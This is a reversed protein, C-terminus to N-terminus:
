YFNLETYARECRTEDCVEIIVYGPMPLEELYPTIDNVSILKNDEDCDLSNDMLFLCTFIVRDYQECHDEDYGCQEKIFRYDDDSKRTDKSLFFRVDFDYLSEAEWVFHVEEGPYIDTKDSSFHVLDIELDLEEQLKDAGCATFLM